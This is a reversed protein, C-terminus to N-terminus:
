GVCVLAKLVHGRGHAKVRSASLESATLSEEYQRLLQVLEGRQTREGYVVGADDLAQRLDSDTLSAFADAAAVSAM